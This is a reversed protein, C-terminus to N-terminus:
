GARDSKGLVTPSRPKGWQAKGHRRFSLHQSMEVGRGWLKGVPEVSCPPSWSTLSLTRPQAANTGTVLGLAGKGVGPTVQPPTIEPIVDSPM